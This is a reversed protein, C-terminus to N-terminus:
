FQLRRAGTRPQNFIELQTERVDQFLDDNLHIIMIDELRESRLRCRRDNFVFNLKSFNREICVETPPVSFVFLALKYLEENHEKEKEWYDIIDLHISTTAPPNYGEILDDIGVHIDNTNQGIDDIAPLGLLELLDEDINIYMSPRPVDENNQQEKETSNKKALYELRTWAKKLEQKAERLKNADSNLLNRLRPDLFMAASMLPNKFLVQKRNKMCTLLYKNLKTISTIKKLCLEVKIWLLYADSLNLNQAWMNKLHKFCDGFTGDNAFFEIAKECKIVSNM